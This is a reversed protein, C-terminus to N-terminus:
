ILVVGSSISGKQLQNHDGSARFDAHIQPITRGGIRAICEPPIDGFHVVVYSFTQFCTLGLEQAYPVIQPKWSKQNLAARSRQPHAASFDCSQRGETRSKRAAILGYGCLKTSTSSPPQIILKM